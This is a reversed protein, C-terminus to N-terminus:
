QHRWGPLLCLPTPSKVLFNIFYNADARKMRNEILTSQISLKQEFAEGHGPGNPVQTFTRPLRQTHRSLKTLSLSRASFPSSSQRYISKQNQNQCNMLRSVKHSTNIVALRSRNQKQVRARPDSRWSSSPPFRPVKPGPSRPPTM